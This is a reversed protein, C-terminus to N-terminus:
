EVCCRLLFHNSGRELDSSASTWSSLSGLLLAIARVPGNCEFLVRVWAIHGTKFDSMGLISLMVRMGRMKELTVMGVIHIGVM